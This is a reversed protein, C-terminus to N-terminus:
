DLGPAELMVGRGKKTSSAPLPMLNRLMEVFAVRQVWKPDCLSSPPADFAKKLEVVLRKLVLGGFSHGILV